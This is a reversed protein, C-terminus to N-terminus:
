LEKMKETESLLIYGLLRIYDFKLWLLVPQNECNNRGDSIFYKAM